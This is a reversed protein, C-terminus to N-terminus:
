QIPNAAVIATHAPNKLHSHNHVYRWYSRDMAASGRWFLFPIHGYFPNLQRDASRATRGEVSYLYLAGVLGTRDSGSKCHILAPKPANRITAVIRDMEDDRVERTASLAFDFHKLGFERTINTEDRYWGEGTGGGRLNIITKIGHERVIRTLSDADMQASRYVLGASVTHFNHHAVANLAYGGIALGTVLVLLCTWKGWRKWNIDPTLTM